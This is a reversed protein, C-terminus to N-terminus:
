ILKKKSTVYIYFYSSFKKNRVSTCIYKGTERENLNRRSGLFLYASYLNNGASDTKTTTNTNFEPDSDGRFIWQVAYSAQCHLLLASDRETVEGFLLDSNKSANIRQLSTSEKALVIDNNVSNVNDRRIQYVEISPLSPPSSVSSFYQKEIRSSPTLACETFQMHAMLSLAIPLIM